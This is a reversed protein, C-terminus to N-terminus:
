ALIRFDNKHLSKNQIFYPSKNWALKNEHDLNEFSYVKRLHSRIYLGQSGHTGIEEDVPLPYFYQRARLIVTFAHINDPM